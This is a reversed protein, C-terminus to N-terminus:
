TLVITLEKPNGATYRSDALTVSTEEFIGLAITLDANLDTDGVPWIVAIKREQLDFFGQWISDSLADWNQRNGEIPPNLPFIKKAAEFFSAKDVIDKPLIFIRSGDNQLREAELEPIGGTKKEVGVM